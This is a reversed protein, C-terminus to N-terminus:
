PKDAQEQRFRNMVQGLTDGPLAFMQWKTNVTLRAVVGLMSALRILERACDDFEGPTGHELQLILM